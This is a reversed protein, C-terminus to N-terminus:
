SSFFKNAYSVVFVIDRHYFFGIDAVGDCIGALRQFFYGVANCFCLDAASDRLYYVRKSLVRKKRFLEFLNCNTPSITIDISQNFDNTNPGDLVGTGVFYIIITLTEWRRVALYIHVIKVCQLSRRGRRDM